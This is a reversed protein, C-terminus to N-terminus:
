NFEIFKSECHRYSTKPKFVSLIQKAWVCLWTVLRKNMVKSHFIALRDTQSDQYSLKKKLLSIEWLLISLSVKTLITSIKRIVWIWVICKLVDKGQLVILFLTFWAEGKDNRERRQRGDWKESRKVMMLSNGFYLTQSVKRARGDTNSFQPMKLWFRHDRMFSKEFNENEWFKEIHGTSTYM